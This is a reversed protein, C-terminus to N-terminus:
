CCLGRAKSSSSVRNQHMRLILDLIQLKTLRLHSVAPCIAGNRNLARLVMKALMLNCVNVARLVMKALMLNCVKTRMNLM